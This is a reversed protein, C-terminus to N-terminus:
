EREGLLRRTREYVEEPAIHEKVAAEMTADHSAHRKRRARMLDSRELTLAWPIHSGQAGKIEYPYKKAEKEADENTPFIYASDRDQIWKWEGDVCQLYEAPQLMGETNFRAVIASM